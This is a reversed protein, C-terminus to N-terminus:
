RKVGKVIKKEYKTLTERNQTKVIDKALEVSSVRIVMDSLQAALSNLRDHDDVFENLRDTKKIEKPLALYDKAKKIQVDRMINIGSLLLAVDMKDKVYLEIKEM